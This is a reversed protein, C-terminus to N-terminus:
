VAVLVRERCSARGIQGKKCFGKIMITYTRVDPQLGKALLSNFIERATTLEGANCMSDMLINYFVINHDLNKDEMEQFM